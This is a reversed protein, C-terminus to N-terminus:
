LKGILTSSRRPGLRLIKASNSERLQIIFKKVEHFRKALGEIVDRAFEPSQM